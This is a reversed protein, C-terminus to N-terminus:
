HSVLLAHNLGLLLILLFALRYLRTHFGRQGLFDGLGYGAALIIAFLYKVTEKGGYGDYNSSSANPDHGLLFIVGLVGMIALSPWTQGEFLSWRRELPTGSLLASVRAGLGIMALFVALAIAAQIHAHPYFHLRDYASLWVDSNLTMWWGLVDMFPPSMRVYWALEVLVTLAAGIMGLLAIAERVLWGKRPRPKTPRPRPRTEVPESASTPLRPRQFRSQTAAPTSSAAPPAPKPKSAQKRAFPWWQQKYRQVTPPRNGLDVPM